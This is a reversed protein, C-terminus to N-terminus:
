FRVTMKIVLILCWLRGSEFFFFFFCYFAFLFRCSGMRRGELDRTNRFREKWFDLQKLNTNLWLQTREPFCSFKIEIEALATGWYLLSKLKGAASFDDAFAVMKIEDCKTTVLEIMILPAIGRVIMRYECRVTDVDKSSLQVIIQKETKTLTTINKTTVTFSNPTSIKIKWALM